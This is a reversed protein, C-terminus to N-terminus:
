WATPIWGGDQRWQHLALVLEALRTAETQPYEPVAEREETESATGDILRTVLDDYELIVRACEVQDRLNQEPDM